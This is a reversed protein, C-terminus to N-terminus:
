GGRVVSSKRSIELECYLIFSNLACVRMHRRTTSAGCYPAGTSRILTIGLIREHSVPRTSSCCEYRAKEVPPLIPRCIRGSSPLGRLAAM